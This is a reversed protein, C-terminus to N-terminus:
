PSAPHQDLPHLAAEDLYLRLEGRAGRLLRVPTEDAPGDPAALRVLAEHKAVGTILLAVIRAANIFPATLTIRPPPIVTPGDNSAM